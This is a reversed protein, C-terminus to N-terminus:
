AGADDVSHEREAQESLGEDRGHSGIEARRGWDFLARQGVADRRGEAGNSNWFSPLSVPKSMSKISATPLFSPASGFGMFMSNLPRIGASCPPRRSRMLEAMYM